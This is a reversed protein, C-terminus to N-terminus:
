YQNNIEELDNLIKTTDIPIRLQKAVDLYMEGNSINNARAIIWWYEPTQYFRDSIHELRDGARANIYIDDDSISIKPYLTPKLVTKKNRKVSKTFNYRSIAM